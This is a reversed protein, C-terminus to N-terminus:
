YIVEDDDEYSHFVEVEIANLSEVYDDGYNVDIKLRQSHNYIACTAKEPTVTAAEVKCKNTTSQNKEFGNKKGSEDKYILGTKKINVSKYINICKMKKKIKVEHIQYKIYM